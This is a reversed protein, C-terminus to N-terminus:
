KAETHLRRKMVRALEQTSRLGDLSLVPLGIQHVDTVFGTITLQLQQLEDLSSWSNPLRHFGADSTRAISRQYAIEVPVDLWVIIVNWDQELQQLICILLRDLHAQSAVSRAVGLSATRQTVGEDLLVSQGSTSARRLAALTALLSLAVRMQKRDRRSTHAIAAALSWCFRPSGESVIIAATRRIRGWREELSSLLEGRTRFRGELNEMLDNVLSSKGSAPLGVLEVLLPKSGHGGSM